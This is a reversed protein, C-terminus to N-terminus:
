SPLTLGLPGRKGDAPERKKLSRAQTCRVFARTVARVALRYCRSEERGKSTSTLFRSLIHDAPARAHRAPWPLPARPVSVRAHKLM